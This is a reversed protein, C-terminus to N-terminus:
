ENTKNGFIILTFIVLTADILLCVLSLNWDFLDVAKVEDENLKMYKDDFFCDQARIIRSLHIVFESQALSPLMLSAYIATSAVLSSGTVVIM